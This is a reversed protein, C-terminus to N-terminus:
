VRSHEGMELVGDEVDEGDDALDDGVNDVPILQVDLEAIPTADDLGMSQFASAFSDGVGPRDM